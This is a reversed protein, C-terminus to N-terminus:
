NKTNIEYTQLYSYLRKLFNGLDKNNILKYLRKGLKGFEKLCALYFIQDERNSNRFEILIPLITKM